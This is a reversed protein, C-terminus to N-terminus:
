KSVTYQLQCLTIVAAAFQEFLHDWEMLGITLCATRVSDAIAIHIAAYKGALFLLAVAAVLLLSQITKM